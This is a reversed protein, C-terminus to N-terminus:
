AAILPPMDQVLTAQAATAAGTLAFGLPSGDPARFVATLDPPEGEVSWAGEAGARPPCVVIPLSTTKVTVPLAKMALRAPKGALVEALTRAQALIPSIYPLFGAPTEACDGLAYVHPDSTRLQLDVQIGLGCALGAARALATVPALGTASLVLDVEFESGDDLRATYGGTATPTLAALTRGCHLRAGRAGLAAELARGLPEPLLRALPWPAPDVLEVSLGRAMLDDAFECGILGAGVLLVRRAGELAEFWRAFDDLSNVTSVWGPEAGPPLFARQAAGLALVLEGYAIDGQSTALRRAACDIATVTCHTRVECNLELAKGEAPKQVLSAPTQGKALANSLLPKSYAEGGDATLVLLERAKDQMRVMRALTYGAQGTGVIVIREPSGNM